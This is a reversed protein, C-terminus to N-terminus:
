FPCQNALAFMGFDMNIDEDEQVDQNVEEDFVQLFPTLGSTSGGPRAKGKFLSSVGSNKLDENGLLRLHEPGSHPSKDSSCSSTRAERLRKAVPVSKCFSDNALWELVENQATETAISPRSDKARAPEKPDNLVQRVWFTTIEQTDSAWSLKREKKAQKPEQVATSLSRCFDSDKQANRIRREERLQMRHNFEEYRQQLRTVPEARIRFGMEFIKIAEDFKHKQELAGAWAEYFLSHSIGISQKQLFEFVRQPRQIKSAFRVWLRLYRPDSKFRQDDVFIDTVRQLIDKERSPCNERAWQAYGCWPHLADPPDSVSVRAEWAQVEAEISGVEMPQTKSDIETHMSLGVSQSNCGAANEKETGRMFMIHSLSDLM